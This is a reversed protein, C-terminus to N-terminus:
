EGRRLLADAVAHRVVEHDTVVKSRDTVVEIFEPGTLNEAVAAELDAASDVTRTAMGLADAIRSLSLGHPTGWHREFTSRDIAESRAQPLFEFIGGGDNNVAVIRLPVGLAAAESVATADHLVALDGILLTVHDAGLAAGTASSITGDIGNVGRNALVRIDGRQGGLMDIDRIPRSSAAWLISGSPVSSSVALAVEPESPWDLTHVARSAAEGVIRDLMKWAELYETNAHGGAIRQSALFETPDCMVETTASGLPDGLRADSVLIQAVGSHEMWRVLPKSATAPLSGLRVVLDPELDSLAILKGDADHASTLLDAYRIVNDGRVISQPDGLIPARLSEAVRALEEPLAPRQTGGVVFLIRAGVYRPLLDHHEPPCGTPASADPSNSPEGPQMPEPAVLPEDFPLNAHVPGPYGGTASDILEAALSRGDADVADIFTKVHNGFLDVQDMTQPAGTGRLRVPRDSTLVILPTGSQDAEVVAPLYHAAASGSTCVVAAPRGTAKAYGLAMFGASREDRINLDDVRPDNAAALTIPTNRSGPSVIFLTVGADALGAVLDRCMTFQNPTEM